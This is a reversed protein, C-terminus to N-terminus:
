RSIRSMTEAEIGKLTSIIPREKPFGDKWNRLNERLSQAPIALVQSEGFHFAEGIDSTAHLNSPLIIEPLFKTNTQASNIENVVDTNRGWILVEHGADCLVQALTTGWAGTGLVSVRAM